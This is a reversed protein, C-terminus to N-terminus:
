VGPTGKMSGLEGWSGSGSGLALHGRLPGKELRDRGEGCRVVGAPVQDVGDGPLGLQARLGGKWPVRLGSGFESAQPCM